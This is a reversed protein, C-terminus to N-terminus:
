MREQVAAIIYDIEEDTLTLASPLWLGKAAYGADLTADGYVKSGEFPKQMTLLPYMKRTGIGRKALRSIMAERDEPYIDNFWPTGEHPRMILGLKEFFRAFTRKKKEIRTNIQAFQDLMFKAQLDTFKFNYGMYEHIDAGGAERGFNKLRRVDRALTDDNTVVCGGNGASMIKHPSFSFCGIKGFTGLYKGAHRSGFAQCADEVVTVEPRTKVFEEVGCDRGNLSVHLYTDVGQPVENEAVFILECGALEAATATGFMTLVPIAVKKAGLARLALFIAVTGSTVFVCHKVGLFAAVKQELEQTLLYEGGLGDLSYQPLNM